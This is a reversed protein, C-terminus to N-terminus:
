HGSDHHLRLLVQLTTYLPLCHCCNTAIPLAHYDNGILRLLTARSMAQVNDQAFSESSPKGWLSELTQREAEVGGLFASQMASIPIEVWGIGLNQALQLADSKNDAPTLESPFSFALVNEAGLADAVLVANVASDLGGSLGLVARTFGCKEFYDRIGCTLAAYTRPLDSEDYPDFVDNPSSRQSQEVNPVWSEHHHFATESM